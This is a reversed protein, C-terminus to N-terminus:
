VQQQDARILRRLGEITADVLTELRAEGRQAGALEQNGAVLLIAGARARLVRAVVYIAAAEMESCLVGARIWARWRAALEEAVPMREAERQGYFSDKSHVVGVHHRLGLAAAGDRFARTVDPDAVAPFALPVYQPSTGEDRVAADAIVLDGVLVDQQMGGATGVRVFTDAGCAHLEEVAIAASPCGIGTSTVTVRAGDLEGTWSVYERNAAVQRAGDLREALLPV